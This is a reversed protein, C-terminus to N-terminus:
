RHFHDVSWNNGGSRCGSQRTNPTLFEEGNSLQDSCFSLLQGPKIPLLNLSSLITPGALKYELAPSGTGTTRTTSTQVAGSLAM